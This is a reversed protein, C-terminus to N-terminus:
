STRGAGGVITGAREPCSAPAVREFALLEDRRIRIIRKSPRQHPLGRALMAYVTKRDVGLLQAAGAVTLIELHTV